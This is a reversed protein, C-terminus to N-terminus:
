NTPNTTACLVGEIPGEKQFGHRRVPDCSRHRDIVHPLRPLCCPACITPSFCGAFATRALPRWPRHINFTPSPQPSLRLPARNIPQVLSFLSLSRHLNDFHVPSISPAWPQLLSSPPALVARQLMAELCAGSLCRIWDSAGLATPRTSFSLPKPSLAHNAAVWKEEVFGRQEQGPSGDKCTAVASCNRCRTITDVTDVQLKDGFVCLCKCFM